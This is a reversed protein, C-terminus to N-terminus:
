GLHTSRDLSTWIGLFYCREHQEGRRPHPSSTARCDVCAECIIGAKGFSKILDLGTASCTEKKKGLHWISYPM